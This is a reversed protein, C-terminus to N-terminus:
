IGYVENEELIYLQEKGNLKVHDGEVEFQLTKFHLVITKTPERLTLTCEEFHYM